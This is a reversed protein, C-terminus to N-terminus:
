AYQHLLLVTFADHARGYTLVGAGASHHCTLPILSAVILLEPIGLLATRAASCAAICPLVAPRPSAACCPLRQNYSGSRHGLHMGFCETVTVDPCDPRPKALALWHM